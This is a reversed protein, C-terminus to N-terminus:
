WYGMAKKVKILRGGRSIVSIEVGIYSLCNDMKFTKVGSLSQINREIVDMSRFCKNFKSTVGIFLFLYDEYSMGTEDGTCTEKLINGINALNSLSIKWNAASKIFDVKGGHLLIKAELLSEGYAWVALIAMKTAVVLPVLGTYGVLATALADAEALKAQDTLLYVFNIGERIWVIKGVVDSLNEVDSAKGSIIYEKEYLLKDGKQTIEMYDLFSKFEQNVYLDFIVKDSIGSKSELTYNGKNRKRKQLTTNLDITNNSISLDGAVIGLLPNTKLLNIVEIPNIMKEAKKKAEEDVKIDEPVKLNESPVKNEELIKRNEKGSEYQAALKTAEEALKVPLKMKYAKVVEEYFGQGEQDTIFSLEKLSEEGIEMKLMGSQEEINKCLYYDIRSILEEKQFKGEKNSSELFILGYNELVERNYEGLVAHLSLEMASAAKIRDAQFVAEQLVQSIISVLVLIVLSLFITISGKEEKRNGM